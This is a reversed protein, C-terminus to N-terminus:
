LSKVLLLSQFCSIAEDLRARYNIMVEAIFLNMEQDTDAKILPLYQVNVQKILAILQEKKSNWSIFEQKVKDRAQKM